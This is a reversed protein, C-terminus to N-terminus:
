VTAWFLAYVKWEEFKLSNRNVPLWLFQGGKNETLTLVYLDTVAKKYVLYLPGVKQAVTYYLSVNHLFPDFWHM